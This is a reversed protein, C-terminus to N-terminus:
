QRGFSIKSSFFRINRTLSGSNLIAGEKEFVLGRINGSDSHAYITAYGSILHRSRGAKKRLHCPINTEEEFECGSELLVNKFRLSDRSAGVKKWM